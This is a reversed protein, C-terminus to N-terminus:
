IIFFLFYLWFTKNKPDKKAIKSIYDRNQFTLNHEKEDLKMLLIERVLKKGTHDM